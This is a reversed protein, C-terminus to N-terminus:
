QSDDCFLSDYVSPQQINETSSNQIDAILTREKFCSVKRIFSLLWVYLRNFVRVISWSVLSLTTAVLGGDTAHRNVTGTSVIVQM